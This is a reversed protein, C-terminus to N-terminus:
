QWRMPPMSTMRPSSVCNSPASASPWRSPQTTSGPVWLLHTSSCPPTMARRDVKMVPSSNAISAACPVSAGKILSPLPLPLSLLMPLVAAKSAPVLAARRRAGNLLASNRTRARTTAPAM